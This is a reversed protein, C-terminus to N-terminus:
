EYTVCYNVHNLINYYLNNLSLTTKLKKCNCFHFRPLHIGTEPREKLPDRWVTHQDRNELTAAGAPPLYQTPCFIHTNKELFYFICRENEGIVKNIQINQTHWSDVEHYLM